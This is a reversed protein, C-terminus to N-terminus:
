LQFFVSEDAFRERSVNDALADAIREVRRPWDRASAWGGDEVILLPRDAPAQVVPTLVPGAFGIIAAAIAGMRLMLLWWPSRDARQDGDTLGLLLAGGPFRRRVPAPPVARLLLWLVPLALLGLLVWPAGFGLPGVMWM